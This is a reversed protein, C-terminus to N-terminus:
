APTLNNEQINKDLYLSKKWNSAMSEKTLRMVSDTNIVSHLLSHEPPWGSEGTTSQEDQLRCLNCLRFFIFVFILLDSRAKVEVIACFLQMHM